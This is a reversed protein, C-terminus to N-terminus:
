HLHCDLHTIIRLTRPLFVYKALRKWQMSQVANKNRQYLEFRNPHAQIKSEIAAVASTKTLSDISM